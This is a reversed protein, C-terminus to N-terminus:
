ASSPMRSSSTVPNLRTSKRDVKRGPHVSVAAEDGSIMGAVGRGQGKDRVPAGLSLGFSELPAHEPCGTKDFIKRSDRMVDIIACNASQTDLEAIDEFGIKTTTSESSFNDVFLGVVVGVILAAVVWIIGKKYKKMFGKKDANEAM